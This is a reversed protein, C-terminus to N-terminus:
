TAPVLDAHVPLLRAPFSHEPPDQKVPNVKLHNAAALGAPGAGVIIVRGLAKAPKEKAPKKAPSKMEGSIFKTVQEGCRVLKFLLAGKQLM